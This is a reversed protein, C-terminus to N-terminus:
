LTKDMKHAVSILAFGALILNRGDEISLSFEEVEFWKLILGGGGILIMAIGTLYSKSGDLPLQDLAYKITSKNPTSVSVEVKRCLIAM